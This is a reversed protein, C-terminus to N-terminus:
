PAVGDESARSSRIVAGDTTARAGVAEAALLAGTRESPARAEREERADSAAGHEIKGGQFAAFGTLAAAAAGVVLVFRRLRQEAPQFISYGAFIAATVLLVAAWTAWTRHTQIVSPAVFTRQAVDDAAALGTYYSPLAALGGLLIALVGWRELSERGAVWGVLGVVAGAIPLVIAFPHSVLHVYEWNM